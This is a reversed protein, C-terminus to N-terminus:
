AFTWHLHDQAWQCRVTRLGENLIPKKAPAHAKLGNECLRGRVTHLSIDPFHAQQIQTATTFRDAHDLRVIHQEDRETTIKKSGCNLRGSEKPDDNSLRQCCKAVTNRSINLKDTIDQYSWLADFKLAFFGGRLFDSLDVGRRKDGDANM